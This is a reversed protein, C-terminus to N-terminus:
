KKIGFSSEVPRDKNKHSKDFMYMTMGSLAVVVLGIASSFLLSYILSLRYSFVKNGKADKEKVYDQKKVYFFIMLSIFSIVTVIISYLSSKSVIELM